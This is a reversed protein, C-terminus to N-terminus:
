VGGKYPQCEAQLDCTVQGGSDPHLRVVFGLQADGNPVMTEVHKSQHTCCSGSHQWYRGNYAFLRAFSMNRNGLRLAVGPEVNSVM